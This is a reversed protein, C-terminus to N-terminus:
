NTFNIVNKPWFAKKLNDNGQYVSGYYTKLYNEFVTYTNILIYFM